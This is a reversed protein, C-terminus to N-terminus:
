EEKSCCSDFAPSHTFLDRCFHSQGAATTQTSVQSLVSEEEMELVWEDTM